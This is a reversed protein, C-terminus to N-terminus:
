VNGSQGAGSVSWGRAAAAREVRLSGVVFGATTAALGAIVTLSSAVGAFEGHLAWRALGRRIARPLVRYTYARESSLGERAGVLRAVVAKSGGEFYCRSIFRRWGLRSSTVLHHVRAAPQYLLRAEPDRQSLRICLETEDCGYGLRFGGAQELVERRFSMNCGILNRVFSARTPLGTYSCGVVWDFEAPFWPPRRPQWRPEIAGGVGAVRPDDYGELLHELWDAEPIADDDVFAVIAGTSKALGTNRAGGLGPVRDNAVALTRPLESQVRTLLAPNQDVVVIVEEPPRTQRELAGLVERLENWRALDHTSVVVSCSRTRMTQSVPCPYPVPETAAPMREVARVPESSLKARSCVVTLVSVSLLRGLHAVATCRLLDHEVHLLAVAREGMPAPAARGARKSIGPGPQREHEDRPSESGPEPRDAANVQSM